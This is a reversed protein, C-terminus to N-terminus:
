KCRPLHVLLIATHNSPTESSSITFRPGLHAQWEATLLRPGDPRGDPMVRVLAVTVDSEEVHMGDCAPRVLNAAVKCQQPVRDESIDLIPWSVANRRM